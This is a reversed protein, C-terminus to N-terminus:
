DVRGLRERMQAEFIGLELDLNEGVACTSCVRRKWGIVTPKLGWERCSRRSRYAMRPSCCSRPGSPAHVCEHVFIVLRRRKTPAALGEGAHDLSCLTGSRWRAPHSCLWLVVFLLDGVGQACEGRTVGPAVM